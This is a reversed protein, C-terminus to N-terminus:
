TSLSFSLCVHTKEVLLCVVSRCRVEALVYVVSCCWRHCWVARAQVEVCTKLPVIKESSFGEAAQALM